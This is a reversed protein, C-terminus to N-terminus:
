NSQQAMASLLKAIMKDDGDERAKALERDLKSRPWKAMTRVQPGRKTPTSSTKASSSTKAAKPAKPTTKIQSEPVGFIKALRKKEQAQGFKQRAAPGGDWVRKAEAEGYRSAFKARSISVGGGGANALQQNAKAVIKKTDYAQNATQDWSRNGKSNNLRKEVIVFNSAVNAKADMIKLDGKAEDRFASIPKLHDVVSDTRGSPPDVKRGTVPSIGRQQLYAEAVTDNKKQRAALVEKSPNKQDIGYIEFADDRNKNKDLINFGSRWMDPNKKSFDSIEKATPQYKIVKVTEGNKEVTDAPWAKGAAKQSDRYKVMAEAEGAKWESFKGIASTGKTESVGDRDALNFKTGLAPDDWCVQKRGVHPRMVDPAPIKEGTVTVLQDPENGVMSKVRETTRLITEARGSVSGTSNSDLMRETADTWMGQHESPVTSKVKADLDVLAAQVRTKDAESVGKWVDHSDFPQSDSGAGIHCTYSASIHGAGCPRGNGKAM